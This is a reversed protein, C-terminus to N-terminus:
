EASAQVLKDGEILITGATIAADIGNEVRSKVQATLKFGLVLATQRILDSKPTAFQKGLIVEAARGIESLPVADDLDSRRGSAHQSRKSPSPIFDRKM